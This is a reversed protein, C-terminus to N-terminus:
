YRPIETNHKPLKKKVELFEPPSSGGAGGGAVPKFVLIFENFYM